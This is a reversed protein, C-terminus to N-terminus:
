GQINWIRCNSLRKRIKFVERIFKRVNKDSVSEFRSNNMRYNQLGEISQSSLKIDGKYSNDCFAYISFIVDDITVNVGDSFSIDDRLTIKYTTKDRAEDYSVEINAPGYYTYSDGNYERVEGDIGRHIIDGNRDNTVLYIQTFDVARKDSRCKKIFPNFKKDLKSCGVVLPIDSQGDGKGNADTNCEDVIPTAKPEPKPEKKRWGCSGASVTIAACLVVTLTKKWFKIM